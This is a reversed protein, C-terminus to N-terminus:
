IHNRQVLINVCLNCGVRHARYAEQIKVVCQKQHHFREYDLRTQVLGRYVNQVCICAQRLAVYRKKCLYGRVHSQIMVAANNMKRQKYDRFIQQIKYAATQTQVYERHVKKRLLYKRVHKQLTLVAHM